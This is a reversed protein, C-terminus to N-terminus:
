GIRTASISACYVSGAGGAAIAIIKTVASAVISVRPIVLRAGVATSLLDTKATGNILQMNKQLTDVTGVEFTILEFRYFGAELTGLDVVTGGLAPAAAVGSATISDAIGGPVIM